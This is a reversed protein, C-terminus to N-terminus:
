NIHVPSGIKKKLKKMRVTKTNEVIHEDIKEIFDDTMDDINRSCYFAYWKELILATKLAPYDIYQRFGHDVRSTGASKRNLDVTLAIPYHDTISHHFIYSKINRHTKARVHFQDLCTQSKSRTCENIYSEYGSASLINKYEERFDPTSLLDINIDGTIIHMDNGKVAQVYQHLDLNFKRPCTSPSRYIDSLTVKQSEIEAILELM